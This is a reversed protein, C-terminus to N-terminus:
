FVLFTKKWAEFCWFPRRGLKLCWFPRRGLKLVGSLDEELSLFFFELFFFVDQNWEMYGAGVCCIGLLALFRPM